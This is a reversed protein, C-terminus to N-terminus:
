EIKKQHVGYFADKSRLYTPGIPQELDDLTVSHYSTAYASELVLVLM